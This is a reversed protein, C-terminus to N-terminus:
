EQMHVVLYQLTFCSQILAGSIQVWLGQDAHADEEDVLRNNRRGPISKPHIYKGQLACATM